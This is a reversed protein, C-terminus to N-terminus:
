ENKLRLDLGLGNITEWLASYEIHAQVMATHSLVCTVTFYHHASTKICIDENM